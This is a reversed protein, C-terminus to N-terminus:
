LQGEKSPFRVVETEYVALYSLVCSYFPRDYCVNRWFGKWERTVVMLARFSRRQVQDKKFLEILADM